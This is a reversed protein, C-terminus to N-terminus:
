TTPAKMRMTSSMRFPTRWNGRKRAPWGEPDLPEPLADHNALSTTLRHNNVADFNLNVDVGLSFPERPHSVDVNGLHDLRPTEGSTLDVFDDVRVLRFWGIHHLITTSRQLIILAIAVPKRRSQLLLM